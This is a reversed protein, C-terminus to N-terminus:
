SRPPSSPSAERESGSGRIHATTGIQQTDREKGEFGISQTHRALSSLLAAQRTNRAPRPAPHVFHTSALVRGRAARGEGMLRARVEHSAVLFYRRAIYTKKSAVKDGMDRWAGSCISFFACVRARPSSERGPALLAAREGRAACSPPLAVAICYHVHAAM